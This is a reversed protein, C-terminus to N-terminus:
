RKYRMPDADGMVDTKFKHARKTLTQLNDLDNNYHNGDKHDVDFAQCTRRVLQVKNLDVGLAKAILGTEHYEDKWTKGSLECAPKLNERYYDREWNPGVRGSHKRMHHKICHITKGVVPLETKVAENCCGPWKCQKGTPIFAKLTVMFFYGKV